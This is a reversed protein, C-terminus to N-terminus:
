GEVRDDRARNEREREKEREDDVGDRAVELPTIACSECWVVDERVDHLSSDHSLCVGWASTHRARADARRAANARSFVRGQEMKM